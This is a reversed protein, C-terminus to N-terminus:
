RSCSTPRSRRRHAGSRPKQQISETSKDALRAEGTAEYRPRTIGWFWPQGGVRNGITIRDTRAVGRNQGSAAPPPSRIEGLIAARRPQRGRDPALAPAKTRPTPPEDLARNYSHQELVRYSTAVPLQQKMLCTGQFFVAIKGDFRQQLEVEAKAYSPRPGGPPIDIRHGAYRLSHDNGVVKRYKFCFLQDHGRRDPAPLWAPTPHNAPVSFRRNHRPLYRALM